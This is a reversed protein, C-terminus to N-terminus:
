SEVTVTTPNECFIICTSTSCAYLLVARRRVFLLTTEGSLNCHSELNKSGKDRDENAEMSCTTPANVLRADGESEHCVRTAAIVFLTVQGSPTFVTVFAAQQGRKATRSSM